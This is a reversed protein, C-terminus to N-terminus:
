PGSAVISLYRQLAAEVFRRLEKLEAVVVPIHQVQTELLVLEEVLGPLDSAPIVTDEYRFMRPLVSFPAAKLRDAVTVSAFSAIMTPHPEEWQRNENLVYVDLGEPVGPGFNL